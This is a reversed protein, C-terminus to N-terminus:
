QLRFEVHVTGPSGAVTGPPALTSPVAYQVRLCQPALTPWYNGPTPVPALTPHASTWALTRPPRPADHSTRSDHVHLADGHGDVM